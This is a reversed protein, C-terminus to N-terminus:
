SLHDIFRNLKQMAHDIAMKVTIDSVEGMFMFQYARSEPLHIRDEFVFGRDDALWPTFHVKYGLFTHMIHLYSIEGVYVPSVYTKYHVSKVSLTNSFSYWSSTVSSVGVTLFVPMPLLQYFDGPPPVVERSLGRSRKPISIGGDNCYPM